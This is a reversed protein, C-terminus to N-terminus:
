ELGIGESIGPSRLEKIIALRNIQNTGEYIQTLKADRWCKEVGWERILADEGLIEMAMRCVAIASDSGSVKAISSLRVARSRVNIPVKEEARERMLGYVWDWNILNQFAKRM